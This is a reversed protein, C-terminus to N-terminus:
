VYDIPIDELHNDDGGDVGPERLYEDCSAYEKIDGHMINLVVINTDTVAVNRPALIMREKFYVPPPVTPSDLGPYTAAILQDVSDV